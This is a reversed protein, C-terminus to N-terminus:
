FEPKPTRWEMTDRVHRLRELLDPPLAQAISADILGIALLDEVHVQDVRRFAQLKMTLLEPLALVRFGAGVDTSAGPDPARYRGQLDVPEDALIVHVGLKPSPRERDVFMHVGLVEAPILNLPALAASMAGLDRRRALLDVDKTARVADEDVTSVWAAVANGGIVAYPVGAEDLARTVTRLLKQVREVGKV